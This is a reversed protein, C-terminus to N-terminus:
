DLLKNSGNPDAVHQSYAIANFAEESLEEPALAIHDLRVLREYESASLMVVRVAGNREVAIPHTIAKHYYFGFRKSVEGSRFTEM